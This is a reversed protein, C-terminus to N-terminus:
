TLLVQLDRVVNGDVPVCDPLWMGGGSHQWVAWDNWPSWDHEPKALDNPVSHAFQTPYDAAWLRYAAPWVSMQGQILNRWFYPFTYILPARRTIESYSEVYTRLWQLAGSPSVGWKPLDTPWEFDCATALEYHGGGNCVLIAHEKAQEVPDIHPLPYLFHYAGVKLGADQASKVNSISFRDPSDNGVGHRVYVFKYSTRDWPIIKNPYNTNQIASVDCGAIM